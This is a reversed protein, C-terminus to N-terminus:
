LRPYGAALMPDLAVVVPDLAVEESVEAAMVVVVVELSRIWATRSSM